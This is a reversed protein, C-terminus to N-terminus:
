LKVPAGKEISKFCAEVFAVSKIADETPMLFDKNNLIADIFHMSEERIDGMRHNNYMSWLYTDPVTFKDTCLKLGQDLNDISAAGKTGVVEVESWIGTPFNEPLSWSFELVGVAGNRFGCLIFICDEDHMKSVKKAHVEVVDDRMYWLMADIDHIGVYYLMSTRGKLREHIFKPNQRKVRIHILEGLNGNEIQQ